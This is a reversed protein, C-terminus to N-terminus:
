SNYFSESYLLFCVQNTQQTITQKQDCLQKRVRRNRAKCKRLNDKYRRIEEAFLECKKCDTSSSLPSTVFDPFNSAVDTKAKPTSCTFETVADQFVEIVENNVDAEQTTHLDSFNTKSSHGGIDCL